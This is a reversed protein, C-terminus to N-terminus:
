LKGLNEREYKRWEESGDNRSRGEKKEGEKGSDCRRKYRIVGGRM